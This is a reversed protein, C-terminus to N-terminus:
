FTGDELTMTQYNNGWGWGWGGEAHLSVSAGEIPNGEEDTVTGSCAGVAGGGGFEQMVFDVVTTEGEVIEIDQPECFYGWAFVSAEYEDVEVAEFLFTGDELTMTQYNNGWGWGWGGEAHLSVSAGEIPDGEEDTVTGSCAGTAGGGGWGWEELVFDVVTTEGAIIEVDESAWMYGFASASATYDGADVEEIIFSGDELSQTYYGGWWCGFESLSVSAGAIPDGEEDAVTGSFTGTQAYGVASFTFLAIILLATIKKLM